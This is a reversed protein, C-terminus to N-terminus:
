LSSISKVRNLLTSRCIGLERSASVINGSHRKLVSKIFVDEREKISVIKDPDTIEKQFNEFGNRLDIENEDIDKKRLQAIFNAKEMVNKLERINGPWNYDELKKIAKKTISLSPNKFFEALSKIDFSRQKLGPIYVSCAEIRYFLDKRLLGSKVLEIPSINSIIILRAKHYKPKDSGLQKIEGTEIARLLMPQINPALNAIDDIVLTGSGAGLFAGKSSDQADTFAGALHGFLEREATEDEFYSCNIFVLNQHRRSSNYHINKAILDKGTGTDGIIFIPNDTRAYSLARDIALAYNNDKRSRDTVIGTTCFDLSMRNFAFFEAGMFSFFCQEPIEIFRRKSGAILIDPSGDLSNIKLGLDTRLIEIGPTKLNQECNNCFKGEFYYIKEKGFIYFRKRKGNLWVEVFVDQKSISM